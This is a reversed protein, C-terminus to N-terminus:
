VEKMLNVHDKYEAELNLRIVAVFKKTFPMM